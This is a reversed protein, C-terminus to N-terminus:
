LRPPTHPFNVTRKRGGKGRWRDKVCMVYMHIIISVLQGLWGARRERVRVVRRAVGTRKMRRTRKPAGSVVCLACVRRQAPWM